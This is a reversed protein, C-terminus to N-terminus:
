LFSVKLAFRPLNRAEEIFVKLVSNRQKSAVNHHSTMTSTSTVDDTATSKNSTMKLSSSTTSIISTQAFNDDFQKEAEFNDTATATDAAASTPEISCPQSTLPGPDGGLDQFIFLKSPLWKKEM